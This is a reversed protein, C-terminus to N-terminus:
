CSHDLHNLWFCCNTEINELENSTTKLRETTKLHSFFIVQGNAIAWSGSFFIYCLKDKTTNALAKLVANPKTWQASHGHGKEHPPGLGPLGGESKLVALWWYILGLCKPSGRQISAVALATATRWLTSYPIFDTGRWFFIAIFNVSKM